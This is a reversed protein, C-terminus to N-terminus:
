QFQKELCLFLIAYEMSRELIMKFLIITWFEGLFSGEKWKTPHQYIKDQELGHYLYTLEVNLVVM